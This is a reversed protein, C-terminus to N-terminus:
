CRLREREGRGFGPANMFLSRVEAYSRVWLADLSPTSVEKTPAQEPATQSRCLAARGARVGVQDRGARNWRLVPTNSRTNLVTTLSKANEEAASEAEDGGLPSSSSRRNRRSSVRRPSELNCAPAWCAAKLVTSRPRRWKAGLEWGAAAHNSIRSGKAFRDAPVSIASGPAAASCGSREVSHAWGETAKGNSTWPCHQAMPARANRATAKSKASRGALKQWPRFCSKRLGRRVQSVSRVSITVSPCSAKRGTRVAVASNRLNTLFSPCPSNGYGRADHSCSREGGAASNESGAGAGALARTSGFSSNSLTSGAKSKNACCTLREM